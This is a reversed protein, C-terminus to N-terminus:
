LEMRSRCFTADTKNTLSLVAGPLHLLM